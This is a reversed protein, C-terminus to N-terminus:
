AGQLKPPGQKIAERITAIEDEPEVRQLAWTAGAEQVALLTARAKENRVAEFVPGGVVIDFPAGPARREEMYAKLQRIDGPGLEGFENDVFRQPSAGEFRMAREMPKKKPWLWGIWIPVGSTRMATPLFTIEKVQHREGTYSFPKGSWLGQLVDLSEDLIKARKKVEMEEGFAGFGKDENTGLGVGLILRGNSLRDLTVIERALKAPRRRAPVAVQLGIKIRETKMAVATLAIWADAVPKNEALYHLTDWLFIGDWGADEATRALDALARADSFAGINPIDLGYYM